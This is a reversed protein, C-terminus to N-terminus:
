GGLFYGKIETGCCCSLHFIRKEPFNMANWCRFRTFYFGYFKSSKRFLIRDRRPKVTFWSFGRPLFESLLTHTRAHFNSANELRRRRGVRSFCQIKMPSIGLPDVTRPANEQIVSLCSYLLWPCANDWKVGSVGYPAVVKVPQLEGSSPAAAATSILFCCGSDLSCFCKYLCGACRCWGDLWGFWDVWCLLGRTKNRKSPTSSKPWRCRFFFGVM